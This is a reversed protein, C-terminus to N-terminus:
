FISSVWLEEILSRYDVEASSLLMIGQKKSKWSILSQRLFIVFGSVSRRTHSCTAWDSDCFAELTFHVDNRLLIGLDPNGKLYRLVFLAAEYHPQRPQQMFQSMHQVAFALDPRTHTLFNLKGVIRRYLCPNEMLYGQSISLKQNCYLHCIVSTAHEDLFNKLAKTAFKRQTLGLGERTPLIEM